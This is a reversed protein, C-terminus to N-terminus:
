PSVLFDLYLLKQSSSLYYVYAYINIRKNSTIKHSVNISFGLNAMENRDWITAVINWVKQGLVKMGQM